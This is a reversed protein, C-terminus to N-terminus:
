PIPSAGYVIRTVSSVATPSFAPCDLLMQIMSPVLLLDTIKHRAVADLVDEPRFQRLIVCSAGTIVTQVLRGLGAVHFMPTANLQIGESPSPVEAMRALAAAGFNGHSLMVGKPQGTTGSTYLIVALHDGGLRKDAAPATSRLLTEHNKLGDPTEKTGMHVIHRLSPTDLERGAAFDLFSDDVYLASAGCDDLAARIEKKSWRTNLPVPIIGSIWSALIFEVYETSNHALIAARDGTNMGLGTFVAALRCARDYLTRYTTQREGHIVAVKDPQRQVSRHLGQTLYM